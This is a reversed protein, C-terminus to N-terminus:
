EDRLAVCLLDVVLTVVVSLTAMALMFGQVPAHDLALLADLAYAGIGPWAFVREVLVAGGAMAVFVLGLLTVVPPLALRLAHGLVVRRAALGRAHAARIPPTALAGRMASRTMRAIPPAAFLAMTLAPLALRHLAELFVSADGHLASDILLFGTVTPPPITFPGLRGIPEPALGLGAHFLHILLLGTVFTPLAAGTATLVRCAHDIVSGPRLAAAIGVPVAVGVALAFAVLTLEASAPLRQLLDAAVPQGTTIALGLDGRMLNGLYRVFQRWLSEDLGLAGRIEAITAADAGPHSAFFAAADGPLLRTLLFTLVVVGLLTGPVALLRGVVRSM